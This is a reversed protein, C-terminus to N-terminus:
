IIKPPMLRSFQLSSHRADTPLPLFNISQIIAVCQQIGWPGDLYRKSICTSKDGPFRYSAAWHGLRVAGVAAGLTVHHGKDVNGDIWGIDKLSLQMNTSGLSNERDAHLHGSPGCTASPQKSRRTLVVYRGCRNLMCVFLQCPRKVLRWRPNGM